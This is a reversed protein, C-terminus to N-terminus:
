FDYYNTRIATRFGIQAFYSDDNREFDIRPSIGVFIQMRNTKNLNYILQLDGSIILPKSATQLNYYGDEAYFDFINQNGIKLFNLKTVIQINKYSYAGILLFESFDNGAPHALAQNYHSYHLEGDYFTYTDAGIMNYEMQFYLNEVNLFNFDKYGIQFAYSDKFGDLRDILFQSYVIGINKSQWSINLGALDNAYSTNMNSYFGRFFPSAYNTLKQWGPMDETMLLIEILSFNWNKIKYSLTNYSVFKAPYRSNISTEELLNSVNNFNPNLAKTYLSNFDFKWIKANTKFYMMPASFDSLIMSRYGAGIFLRDYGLTFNINQTAKLSINGYAASFDYGNYTTLPKIRGYGPIINYTNYFRTIHEPFVGQNEFFSTNFYIRSDLNGQLLVGRTNLYGLENNLGSITNNIRFDFIPDLIIKFREDEQVLLHEHFVKRKIWSIDDYKETTFILSDFIQNEVGTTPRILTSVDNYYIDEENLNQFHGTLPYDQAFLLVPFILFLIFHLKKM